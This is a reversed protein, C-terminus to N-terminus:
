SCLSKFFCSKGLSKKKNIWPKNIKTFVLTKRPFLQKKSGLSRFFWSKELSVNTKRSFVLKKKPFGFVGKKKLM